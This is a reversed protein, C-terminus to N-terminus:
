FSGTFFSVFVLHSNHCWDDVKVATPVAEEEGERDCFLDLKKLRVNAECALFIFFEKKNEKCRVLLFIEGFLFCLNSKDSKKWRGKKLGM